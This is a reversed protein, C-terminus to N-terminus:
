VFMIQKRTHSFFRCSCELWRQVWLELNHWFFRTGGSEQSVARRRPSEKLVMERRGPPQWSLRVPESECPETWFRLTTSLALAPIFESQNGENRHAGSPWNRPRIRLLRYMGYRVLHLNVAYLNFPFYFKKRLSCGSDPFACWLLAMIQIKTIQSLLESQLGFQGWDRLSGGVEVERTNPICTHDLEYNPRVTGLHM